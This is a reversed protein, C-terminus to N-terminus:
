QESEMFVTLPEDYIVSRAHQSIERAWDYGGILRACDIVITSVTDRLVFAVAKQEETGGQLENADLWDFIAKQILPQLHGLFQRYFPNTPIVVLALWFAHNIEENTLKEREDILDDWLQSVEFLAECFAVAEANGKLWYMLLDHETQADM